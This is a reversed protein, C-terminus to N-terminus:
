LYAFRGRKNQPGPPTVVLAQLHVTTHVRHDYVLLSEKLASLARFTHM